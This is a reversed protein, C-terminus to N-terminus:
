VRGMIEDHAMEQVFEPNDDTLAELQEDSLPNGNADDASSIYADVLDPYDLMCIGDIQVNTLENVNMGYELPATAGIM